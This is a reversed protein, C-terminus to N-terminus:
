RRELESVRQRLNQVEKLLMPIMEVYNIGKEAEDGTCIEPM